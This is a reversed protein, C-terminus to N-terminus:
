DVVPPPFDPARASVTDTFPAEVVDLADPMEFTLTSEFECGLIVLECPPDGSPVPLQWRLRVMESRGAPIDALFQPIPGKGTTATDFPIPGVLKTGATPSTADTLRVGFADGPGDNTVRYVVTVTRTLYHLGVFAWYTDVVELDLSPQLVAIDGSVGLEFHNDAGPAVEVSLDALGSGEADRYSGTSETIEWPLQAATATTGDFDLTRPEDCGAGDADPSSRLVMTVTGRQNALTVASETGQLWAAGPEDGRDLGDELLGGDSTARIDHDESHLDVHLRTRGTLANEPGTIVGPALAAEYDYHWYAGDGGSECSRGGEIRGTGVDGAVHATFPRPAGLGDPQASSPPM